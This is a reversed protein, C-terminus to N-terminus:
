EISQMLVVCGNPQYTGIHVEIIAPQTDRKDFLFLNWEKNMLQKSLNVQRNYKSLYEALGSDEPMETMNDYIEDLTTGYGEYLKIGNCPIERDELLKDDVYVDVAYYGLDYLGKLFEVEDESNRTENMVSYFEQYEDGIPQVLATVQVYDFTMAHVIPIYPYENFYKSANPTIKNWDTYGNGARDEKRFFAAGGISGYKAAMILNLPSFEKDLEHMWYIYSEVLPDTIDDRNEIMDDIEEWTYTKYEKTENNQMEGNGPVTTVQAEQRTQEPSLTVTIASSENTANNTIVAPEGMIPSTYDNNRKTNKANSCGNAIVIILLIPITIKYKKM